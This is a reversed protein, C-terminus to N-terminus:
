LGARRLRLTRVHKYARRKADQRSCLRCIKGGLRITFRDGSKRITRIAKQFTSM